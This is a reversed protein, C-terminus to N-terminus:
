GIRNGFFSILPIAMLAIVLGVVANIITDKANKTGEPSGQSTIYKFGGYILYGFAIFAAARIVAEVVAFLILIIQQPEEIMPQCTAVDRKPLYKYWTPFGFVFSDKCEGSANQLETPSVDASGTENEPAEEEVHSVGGNEEDCVGENRISPPGEFVTGDECIIRIAFVPTARLSFGAMMVFFAVLLGAALKHNYIRKM